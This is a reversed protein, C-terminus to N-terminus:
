IISALFLLLEEAVIKRGKENLHTGDYTYDPVLQFYEKGDFSFTARKEDPYTSQIKALDFLPEKGYYEKRLQENFENAKINVAYEWLDKKGILKKIWTKWTTKSRSLPFTNHVFITKPYKKKLQSLTKKYDAFIDLMEKKDYFPTFRLLVIDFYGGGKENLLQESDNAISQPSANQEILSHMFFGVKSNFTDTPEVINLKVHSNAKILDKIGDVINNGVARHGVYM